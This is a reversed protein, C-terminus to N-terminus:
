FLLPGSLFIKNLTTNIGLISLWEKAKQEKVLKLKKSHYVECKSSLM